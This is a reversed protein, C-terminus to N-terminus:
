GKLFKNAVNTIILGVFRSNFFTLYVIWIGTVIAVLVIQHLSSRGNLESKICEINLHNNSCNQGTALENLITTNFFTANQSYALTLQLMFLVLDKM